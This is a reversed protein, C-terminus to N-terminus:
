KGHMGPPYANMLFASALFSYLYDHKYGGDTADNLFASIHDRTILNLQKSERAVALCDLISDSRKGLGQRLTRNWLVCLHEASFLLGQELQSSRTKTMVSFLHHRLPALEATPSLGVRERLDMITVNVDMPKSPLLAKLEDSSRQLNQNRVVVIVQLVVRLAQSGVKVGPRPIDLFQRVKDTDNLNEVFFCIVQTWPLLFDSICRQYIDKVSNLKSKMQYHRLHKNPWRCPSKTGKMVDSIFNGEAFLVPYQNNATETSLHLGLFSSPGRRTVNNHPFLAQMAPYRSSGGVFYIISPYQVRPEAMSTVLTELRGTDVLTWGKTDVILDLWAAMKASVSHVFRPSNTIM